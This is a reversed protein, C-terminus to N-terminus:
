RGYDDPMLVLFAGVVPLGGRELAGSQLSAVVIVIGILAITTASCDM